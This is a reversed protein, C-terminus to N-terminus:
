WLADVPAFGTEMLPSLAENQLTRYSIKHLGPPMSSAYTPGGDEPRFLLTMAGNDRTTIMRGHARERQRRGYPLDPIVHALTFTPVGVDETKIVQRGKHNPRDPKKLSASQSDPSASKRVDSSIWFIAFPKSSRM